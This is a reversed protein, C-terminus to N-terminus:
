GAPLHDKCGANGHRTRDGEQRWRPSGGCEFGAGSLQAQSGAGSSEGDIAFRRTYEAKDPRASFRADRERRALAKVNIEHIPGACGRDDVPMALQRGPRLVAKGPRLRRRDRRAVGVRIIIRRDWAREPHVRMLAHLFLAQHGGRQDHVAGLVQPDVPLFHHQHQMIEAEVRGLLQKGSQGFGVATLTRHRLIAHAVVHVHAWSDHAGHVHLGARRDVQVIDVIVCEEGVVARKGIRLDDAGFRTPPDQQPQDIGCGRSLEPDIETREGAGDDSDVAM